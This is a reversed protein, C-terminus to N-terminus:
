TPALVAKSRPQVLYLGIFMMALAAWVAPPYAENLILRAWFLGFGTVLYSVQVAFVPGARGVLWVYGAYVLAHSLSALILAHGPTSMLERPPIFQGSALAMPLIVIAGLVSAGFLVQVADLGATGWKAVVNGELAYCLSAVLAILMWFVPTGLANSAGPTLIIFVGCLGALLGTLRRPAFRELGMALAVPFALMPITALLLSLIGAPLHVAAQYSATNPILTGLLAVVAFVRLTQWTIPLGRGRVLSLLGMLLSGIVLQWFILGFHGFGNSVAIKTLPVTVGWGAGLVVLVLIFGIRERSTM